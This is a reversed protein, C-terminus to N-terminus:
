VGKHSRVVLDSLLSLSGIRIGSVILLKAGESRASLIGTLANSFGPGTTVFVVEPRNAALSSELAAFVAGGEHKCHYVNLGSAKLEQAFSGIPCGIVGFANQAGLRKLSEIIAQSVTQDNATNM